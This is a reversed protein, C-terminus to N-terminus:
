IRNSKLLNCRECLLQLNRVSNGGGKSTAPVTPRVDPRAAGLSITLGVRRASEGRATTAQGKGSTASRVRAKPGRLARRIGWAAFSLMALVTIGGTASGKDAARPGSASAEATEPAPLPQTTEVQAAPAHAVRTPRPVVPSIRSRALQMPPASPATGESPAPPPPPPTAAQVPAAPGIASTPAWFSGPKGTTGRCAVYTLGNHDTSLPEWVSRTSIRVCEGEAATRAVWQRDNRRPEGDDNLAPAVNPDVCGWVDSKLHVLPNAMARDGAWVAAAVALLVTGIRGAEGFPRRGVASTGAM